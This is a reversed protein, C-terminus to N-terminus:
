RNLTDAALRRKRASVSRCAKCRNFYRRKVFMQLNLQTNSLPLQTPTPSLIPRPYNRAHRKVSQGFSNSRQFFTQHRIRIPHRNFHPLSLKPHRLVAQLALLAIRTKHASLLTRPADKNTLRRYSQLM